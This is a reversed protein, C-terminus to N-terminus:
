RKEGGIPATKQKKKKKSRSHPLVDGVYMSGVKENPQFYQIETMRFMVPKSNELNTRKYCSLDISNNSNEENKRRKINQNTSIPWNVITFHFLDIDSHFLNQKRSLKVSHAKKRM